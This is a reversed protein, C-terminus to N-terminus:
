EPLSSLPSCIRADVEDLGLRDAINTAEDIVEITAPSLQIDAEPRSSKQEMKIRMDAWDMLYYYDQALTKEIFAVLGVDKHLLAKFMHSPEIAGSMNEKAYAQAIRIVEAVGNDIRDKTEM